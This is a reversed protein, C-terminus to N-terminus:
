LMASLDFASKKAFWGLVRAIVTCEDHRIAASETLFSHSDQGFYFQSMPLHGYSENKVEFKASQIWENCIPFDTGCSPAKVEGPAQQM